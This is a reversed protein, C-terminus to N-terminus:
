GSLDLVVLEAGSQNILTQVVPLATRLLPPGLVSVSLLAVVTAILWRALLGPSATASWRTDAGLAM